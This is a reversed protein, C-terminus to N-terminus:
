GLSLRYALAALCVKTPTETGYTRDHPAVHADVVTADIPAAATSAGICAYGVRGLTDTYECAFDAPVRPSPICGLFAGDWGAIGGGGSESAPLTAFTPWLAGVRNDPWPGEAGNVTGGTVLSVSIAAVLTMGLLAAKGPGM